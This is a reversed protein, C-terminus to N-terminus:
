ELPAIRRLPVRLGALRWDERLEGIHLARWEQVLGVVRPPLAGALVRGDDVSIVAEWGGYRAHFHPPDHDSYYMTM